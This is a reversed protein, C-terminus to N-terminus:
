VADLDIQWKGSLGYVFRCLANVSLFEVIVFKISTAVM